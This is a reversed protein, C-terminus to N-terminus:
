RPTTDNDSVGSKDAGPEDSIRRSNTSSDIPQAAGVDLGTTDQGTISDPGIGTAGSAPSTTDSAEQNDSNGGSNCSIMAFVIAAYVLLRKM